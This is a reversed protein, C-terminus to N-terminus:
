KDLIESFQYIYEDALKKIEETERESYKDYVGVAQMNGMKAGKIGAYIDEFVICDENLVGLKEATLFYIDPFGKGREVEDTTSIADFLDYIANNKLVPEVLYIPSATALGIKIGLNKLYCLYEKAYPKLKIDTRYHNIAMESCEDIVQKSSLPVGLTNIFYDAVGEFSMATMEDIYNEPFIIGYKSLFDRNIEEWAGNSDILTGDLDFIAAKFAKM